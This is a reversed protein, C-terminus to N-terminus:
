NDNNEDGWSWEGLPEQVRSSARQRENGGYVVREMPRITPDPLAISLGNQIDLAILVRLFTDLGVTEGSELRRLTKEAIGAESALRSQTLNRSLRIASIKRGLDSIIQESSAFNYDVYDSM